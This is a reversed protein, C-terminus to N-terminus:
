HNLKEDIYKKLEENEKKLEIMYLTLEEVKKLLLADMEAVNIGSETMESASPVEPLHSNEKIYKEVENLPLLNYDKAFVFDPWGTATNVKIERAYTIGSAKVKFIEKNENTKCNLITGIDGSGTAATGCTILLGNTNQPNEVHLTYTEAYGSWTQKIHVFPNVSTNVGIGAQGTKGDIYFRTNNVVTADAIGTQDSTGPITSPISSFYFNGDVNGYIISAGNKIGNSYTKWDSAGRTANLGLYATGNNLTPYPIAGTAFSYNNNFRIHFKDQPDATGIGINGLIGPAVEGGVFFTPTTFGVTSNFGIALSNSNINRMNKGFSIGFDAKDATSVNYGLAISNNGQAVTNPGTFSSNGLTLGNVPGFIATTPSNGIQNIPNTFILSSDGFFIIDNSSTIRNHTLVLFDSGSSVKLNGEIDLNATPLTKGIGVKFPTHIIGPANFWSTDTQAIVSDSLLIVALLYLLKKM